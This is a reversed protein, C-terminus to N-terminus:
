GADGDPPTATLTKRAYAVWEVLDDSSVAAPKAALTARNSLVTAAEKAYISKWLALRGPVSEAPTPTDRLQQIQNALHQFEATLAARDPTSNM